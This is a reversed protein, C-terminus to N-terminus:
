EAKKHHRHKKEEEAKAEAEANAKACSLIEEATEAVMYDGSKGCEAILDDASMKLLAEEEISLHESVRYLM